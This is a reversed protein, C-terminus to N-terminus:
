HGLCVTGVFECPACSDSGPFTGIECLCEVWCQEGSGPDHAHGHFHHVDPKDVCDGNHDRYQWPNCETQDKQRPQQGHSGPPAFILVAAAVVAMVTGIVSGASGLIRTKMLLVRRFDRGRLEWFHAGGIGLRDRFAGAKASAEM